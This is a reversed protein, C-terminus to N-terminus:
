LFSYCFESFFFICFSQVLTLPLVRCPIFPVQQPQIHGPPLGTGPGVMVAANNADGSPLRRFSSHLSGGNSMPVPVFAIGEVPLHSGHWNILQHQQEPFAATTTIMMRRPAAKSPSHHTARDARFKNLLSRWSSVSMVPLPAAETLKAHVRSYIFVDSVRWLLWTNTGLKTNWESAATVDKAAQLRQCRFSPSLEDCLSCHLIVFAEDGAAEGFNNLGEVQSLKYGKCGPFRSELGGGAGGACETLAAEADQAIVHM